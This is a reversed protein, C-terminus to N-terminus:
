WWVAQDNDHPDSRRTGTRFSEEIQRHSEKRAIDSVTKLEARYADYEGADRLADRFTFFMKGKYYGDEEACDMRGSEKPDRVFGADLLNQRYKMGVAFIADLHSSM